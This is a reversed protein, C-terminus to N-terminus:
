GEGFAAELRDLRGEIAEFRNHTENKEDPLEGLAASIIYETRTLGAAQARADIRELQEVSVRFGTATREPATKSRPKKAVASRSKRVASM